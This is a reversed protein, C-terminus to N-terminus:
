SRSTTIAHHHFHSCRLCVCDRVSSSSSRVTAHLQLTTTLGPVLLVLGPKNTLRPLAPWHCWSTTSGGYRTLSEGGTNEQPRTPVESLLPVVLLLPHRCPRAFWGPWPTVGIAKIKLTQAFRSPCGQDQSFCYGTCNGIPTHKLNLLPSLHVRM